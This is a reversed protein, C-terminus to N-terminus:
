PINGKQYESHVLTVDPVSFAAKVFRLIILDTNKEFQLLAENEMSFIGTDRFGLTYGNASLQGSLVFVVLIDESTERNLRLSTGAAFNGRKLKRVVQESVHDQPQSLSMLEYLRGEKQNKQVPNFCHGKSESDADIWIELIESEETENANYLTSQLTNKGVSVLLTDQENLTHGYGTSDYYEVSGNILIRIVHMPSATFNQIEQKGPLMVKDDFRIINGWVSKVPPYVVPYISHHIKISGMDVFKRCQEALYKM